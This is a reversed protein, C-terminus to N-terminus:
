SCNYRSFWVVCLPSVQVTVNTLVQLNWHYYYQQGIAYSPTDVAFFVYIWQGIM